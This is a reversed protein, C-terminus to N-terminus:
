SLKPQPTAADLNAKGIGAVWFRAALLGGGTLLYALAAGALGFLPILLVNLVASAIAGGVSILAIAHDRHLALLFFQYSDAGIRMLTAVLILYFIPLNAQLAPRDLFPLLLPVAVAAGIALAAAWYAAENRVRREAAHFATTDARAHAAILTPIQPHVVSYVALNHVVNTFSWFLTYVGTLELGLFLSILFRDLHLSAAAALDKIYFPVSAPVGSLLWRWRLGLYRWRGNTAVYAALILWLLVLGGIWGALLCNLTRASPDIAGWAIVALPWLGARLFLLVNALLARGRAILLDNADNAVHELLLILGGSLVLTWPVPTGLAANIIWLLPQAIAHMVVPLALRTTMSALAEARPMTVIQRLVWDSTGLGLIAPALVTGGVLLGYVGLDALGLYRATYLALLFKAATNAMRLAILILPRSLGHFRQLLTM